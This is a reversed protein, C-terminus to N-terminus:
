LLGDLEDPSINSNEFKSGARNSSNPSFFGLGSPQGESGIYDAHFFKLAPFNKAFLAIIDVNNTHMLSYYWDLQVEELHRFASAQDQVDVLGLKLLLRIREADRWHIRFDLEEVNLCLISILLIIPMEDGGQLM